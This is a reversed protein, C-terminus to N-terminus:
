LPFDRLDFFYSYCCWKKGRVQIIPVAKGNKELIVARTNISFKDIHAVQQGTPAESSVATEM